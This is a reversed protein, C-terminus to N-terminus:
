GSDPAPPMWPDAVTLRQLAALPNVGNKIVTALYSRVALWATAGTKTRFGGSIKQQVKVMRVQREAENNDFPVAFNTTFRLVDEAYTDLRALLNAPKTKKPRGRRGTPTPAPNAAHGAAIIKDYDARIDALQEATFSTAGAAKADLVRHWTDALLAVMETAWGQGDTEAAADLERLHHANCLAHAVGTYKRYPTWGDHVLVGTLRDLVGMADIAVTGRRTDLHYLTLRATSASHVWYLSADVRLGTEDAHVVDAKGLAERLAALFADLMGAGEKVMAVITGTSVPIGHVDRMLEAVRNIPIHQRVVLYCVLARLNPGYCVPGTAEAPFAATTETGCGCRRRECRHETVTAHVPALDFVQRRVEGTVAADTLGEGCRDCREPTHCAVIDPDPVAALNKGPAGPQKGPKKGSRGRRSKPGPKSYGDSSPPKSSNTSNKGLRARLEVNEAVLRVIMEAQESVKARLSGIETDIGDAM